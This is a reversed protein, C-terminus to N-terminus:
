EKERICFASISCLAVRALVDLFLLRVRLNAWDGQVDDEGSQRQGGSPVLRDWGGCASLRQKFVDVGSRRSLGASIGPAASLRNKERKEWVESIFICGDCRGTSRQLHYLTGRNPHEGSGSTGTFSGAGRM